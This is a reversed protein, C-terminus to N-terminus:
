ITRRMRSAPSSHSTALTTRALRNLATPNFAIASAPTHAAIATPVGFRTPPSFSVDRLPPAPVVPAAPADPAVPPVDASPLLPSPLPFPSPSRSLRRRQPPSSCGTCRLALITLDVLCQEELDAGHWGGALGLRRDAAASSKL